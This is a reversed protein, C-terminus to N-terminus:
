RVLGKRLRAWFLNNTLGDMGKYGMEISAFPSSNLFLCRGLLKKADIYSAPNTQTDALHFFFHYLFSTYTVEQGKQIKKVFIM